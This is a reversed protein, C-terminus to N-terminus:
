NYGRVSQFASVLDSRGDFVRGNSLKALEQLYDDDADGFQISFIPIDINLAQYQNAVEDKLHEDNARGDSLIVIMPTHEALEDTNNKIHELASLVAANMSTGGGASYTTIQQYLEELETSAGSASLPMGVNSEFKIVHTIDRSTGQLLNKSAKDSQMVYSLAEELQEEGEGAMSGSYDLLYYTLAPKKFATQYAILAEELVKAEPLRVTNLIKSTDIGWDPNFVQNNNQTVTNYATRRGTEQIKEQAEDSLLYEQFALFAKEKKENQHDVYALPADSMAVGDTPYVVYLPEKGQEILQKNTQIILTEYNVMADYNGNLFLTVLWNSSGSSRSVGSLLKTIKDILQQNALDESTLNEKGSLATLFSLYATAGSNSQTASTMAFTLKKQEIAALIEAISVDGDTFGLQEALSQRIGFVVPSMSISETYKLLNHTDGMNLWMSSATWAADYDVEGSQLLQMTTLSGQYAINITQRNKKAYEEIIPELVEIESGAVINLTEGGHQASFDFDANGSTKNDEDCAVVLVCLIALALFKLLRKM